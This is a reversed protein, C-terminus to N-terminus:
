IVLPKAGACVLNRAAEAVAITGGVYPNLLCYLPNGDVTIALAKTTDKVRLVASDSGPLIVTNTRVMFDYQEYIWAKNSLNPSGLLELLTAGYDRPVPILEHNLTQLMEQFQPPSSQREPSPAEDTLAQAQMEAVIGNADHIRLMGDDTVKGIVAADLDWKECVALVEHASEPKAVLLMREQSESLMVDYPTMGQERRPVTAVDLEIGTGAGSAM